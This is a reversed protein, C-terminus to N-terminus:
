KGKQAAYYDRNQKFKREGPDAKMAREMVRIAGDWDKAQDFSEAWKFYVYNRNQRFSPSEREALAKNFWALANEWDQKGDALAIGVRAIYADCTKGMDYDDGHKKVARFLLEAAADPGSKKETALAWEQYAYARDKLFEREGGSLGAGLNFVAIARDYAEAKLAELGANHFLANRAKHMDRDEPDLEAAETFRDSAGMLDGKQLLEGAIQACYFARNQRFVREDPDIKMGEGLVRITEDLKGADALSKAWQFIVWNRNQRLRRDQPNAAMAQAMTEVAKAFEGAKALGLAWQEYVMGKGETALKADGTQAAAKEVIALAEEPQGADLRGVAWRVYISKRNNTFYPNGPSQQLGREFVALAEAYKKEEALALGWTNFACILDADLSFNFRDIKLGERFIAVAKEWNKAKLEGVGWLLYCGITAHLASAFGPDMELAKSLCVLARWYEGANMLGVARNSYIIAVLGVAEVERRHKSKPDPDYAFGSKDKFRAWQEPDRIRFFGNPSTTEADVAEGEAHLISFVHDPLEIAGAKLGLPLCVSNYLTCSSVCNFIRTDLLKDFDTAGHEYHDFFSKHLYEFVLFGRHIENKAGTSAKRAGEILRNVVALYKKLAKEDAVGSAILAAEALPMDDFRGDKADRIMRKEADNYEVLVLADQGMNKFHSLQDKDIETIYFEPEKNLLGWVEIENLTATAGGYNSYLRLKVFKAKLDLLPFEQPTGDQKLTFNGLPIFDNVPSTLSVQVEFDQLWTKPDAKSKPNLVIKKITAVQDKYFALVIDQPLASGRETAYAKDGAEGDILRDVNDSDNGSSANVIRGGHARSTLNILEGTPPPATEPFAASTFALLLALHLTPVRM